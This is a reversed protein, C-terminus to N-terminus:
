SALGPEIARREHDTCSSHNTAAIVVRRCRLSNRPWGTCQVHHETSKARPEQLLKFNRGGCVIELDGAGAESAPHELESRVNGVDDGEDEGVVLGGRIGVCDGVV